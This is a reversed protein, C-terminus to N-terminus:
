GRQAFPMWDRWTWGSGGEDSAAQGEGAARGQEVDDGGTYITTKKKRKIDGDLYARVLRPNPVSSVLRSVTPLGAAHRLEAVKTRVVQRLDPELYRTFHLTANDRRQVQGVCRKKGDTPTIFVFDIPMPVLVGKSRGLMQEISIEINM